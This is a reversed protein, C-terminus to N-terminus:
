EKPEKPILEEIALAAGYAKDSVSTNCYAQLSTGRERHKDFECRERVVAVMEQGEFTFYLLGGQEYGQFMPRVTPGTAKPTKGSSVGLIIGYGEQALSTACRYRRPHRMRRKTIYAGGRTRNANAAFAAELKFSNTSKM